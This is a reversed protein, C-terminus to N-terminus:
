KELLKKVKYLYRLSGYHVGNSWSGDESKNLAEEEIKLWVSIIKIFEKHNM